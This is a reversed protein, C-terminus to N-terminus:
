GVFRNIAFGFFQYSEIENLGGIRLKLKIKCDIQVRTSYM